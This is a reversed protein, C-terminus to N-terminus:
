TSVHCCICTKQMRLIEFVFCVQAFFGVSCQKVCRFLVAHWIQADTLFINDGETCLGMPQGFAACSGSGNKNGEEGTGIVTVTGNRDLHM